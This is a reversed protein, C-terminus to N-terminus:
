TTNPANQTSQRIAERMMELLSPEDPDNSGQNAVYTSLETEFAVIYSKTENEPANDNTKLTASATATAIPKPAM